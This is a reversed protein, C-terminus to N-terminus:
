RSIVNFASVPQPPPPVADNMDTREPDLRTFDRVHVSLTRVVLQLPIRWGPGALSGISSAGPVDSM